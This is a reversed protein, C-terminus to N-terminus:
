RHRSTCCYPLDFLIGSLNPNNKLLHSLFIGQGGGIDVVTNFQSFDYMSSAYSSTLSAMACNFIQADKRNQDQQFYKFMDLGNAHKFSNEGTEISYSLDNIARNFSELGFMLALNRISGKTESQLLATKPTIDFKRKNNNNNVEKEGDEEATEAFIGVSALMRLLRYLSDPHTKSQVALEEVSKPGNKLYDAIRFKAVIYIAQSLQGHSLMDMVTFSSNQLHSEYDKSKSGGSVSDSLSNSNSNSNSM